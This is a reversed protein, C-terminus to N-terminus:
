LNAVHDLRVPWRARRCGGDWGVVAATRTAGASACPCSGRGSVVSSRSRRFVIPSGFAPRRDPSTSARVAVYAEPFPEDLRVISWARIPPEDPRRYVIRDLAADRWRGLEKGMLHLAQSSGALHTVQCRRLWPSPCKARGSEPVAGSQSQLLRKQLTVLVRNIDPHAFGLYPDATGANIWLPLNELEGGVRGLRRERGLENLVPSDGPLPIAWGWQTTGLHFLIGLEIAAVTLPVWADLRGARRVRYRRGAAAM